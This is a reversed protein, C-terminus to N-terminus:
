SGLLADVQAAATVPDDVDIMVIKTRATQGSVLSIDRRRVGLADALAAVVAQNAAGDVPPSNVAVVLQRDEGYSGGVKTRSAGPKVRVTLRISPM